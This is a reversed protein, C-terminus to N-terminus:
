QGRLAAETINFLVWYTIIQAGVVIAVGIVANRLHGQASKIKEDNGSATMWLFGSYIILIVFIVGLLGLVTQIINAVIIGISQGGIQAETGASNLEGLINPAAFISVDVFFLSFLFVGLGGYLVCKSVAGLAQLGASLPPDKEQPM